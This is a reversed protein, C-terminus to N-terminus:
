SGFRIPYDEVVKKASFIRNNISMFYGLVKCCSEFETKTLLGEDVLEGALEIDTYILYNLEWCDITLLTSCLTNFESWSKIAFQSPVSEPMTDGRKLGKVGKLLESFLSSFDKVTYLKVNALRNAYKGGYHRILLAALYSRKLVSAIPSLNAFCDSVYGNEMLKTSLLKIIDIGESNFYNEVRGDKIKGLLKLVSSIDIKALGSSSNRDIVDKMFNFSDKTRPLELLSGIDFMVECVSFDESLTMIDSYQKMTKSEMLPM